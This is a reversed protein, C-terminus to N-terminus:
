STALLNSSQSHALTGSRMLSQVQKYGVHGLKNHWRGLEKQAESLNIKDNSVTTILANLAEPAARADSYYNYATTTPLNNVPNFQAIVSGRGQTGQEGSLTM